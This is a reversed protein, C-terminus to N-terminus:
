AAMEMTAPLAAAVEPVLKVAMPPMDVDAVPIDFRLRLWNQLPQPRSEYWAALCARGDRDIAAILQEGDLLFDAAGAQDRRSLAFEFVDSGLQAKLMQVAAGRIERALAAAHWVAGCFRPLRAFAATDLLLVPLDASDALSQLPALQFHRDLLQWLRPHFRPTALLATVQEDPLVGGFCEALREVPLRHLPQELLAQWRERLSANLETNAASNLALEVSM